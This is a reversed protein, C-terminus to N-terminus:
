CKDSSSFSKKRIHLPAYVKGARQAMFSPPHGFCNEARSANVNKSIPLPGQGGLVGGRSRGNGITHCTQSSTISINKRVKLSTILHKKKSQSRCKYGFFTFQIHEKSSTGKRRPIGCSSTLINFWTRSYLYFAWFFFSIHHWVKERFSQQYRNVIYPNSISNYFDEKEKSSSWYFKCSQRTNKTNKTSRFATCAIITEVRVAFM